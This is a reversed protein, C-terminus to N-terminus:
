LGIMNSSTQSIAESHVSTSLGARATRPERCRASAVLRKGGTESAKRLATVISGPQGTRRGPTIPIAGLRTLAPLSRRLTPSGSVPHPTCCRCAAGALPGLRESCLLLMLALSTSLRDLLPLPHARCWTGRRWAPPREEVRASHHRLTDTRLFPRALPAAAGAPACGTAPLARSATRATASPAGPPRPRRTEDCTGCPHQPRM